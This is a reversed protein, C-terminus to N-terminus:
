IYDSGREDHLIAGDGRGREGDGEGEKKGGICMERRRGELVQRGGEERWYVNGEKKGGICMERKRGEM